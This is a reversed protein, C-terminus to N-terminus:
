RLLYERYKKILDNQYIRGVKYKKGDLTTVETKKIDKINNFNIIMSRQIQVLLPSQFLNLIDNISMKSLTDEKNTSHVIADHGISLIYEIKDMDFVIQKKNTTVIKKNNNHDLYQQLQDWVIDVDNDYKAKRIFQFVGISFTRFVLDERGSIFIILIHPFTKRLYKALHIGSSVKLDIDLFAIDINKSEIHFFDDNKIEYSIDYFPFFHNHFDTQLKQIFSLDDDVILVKM